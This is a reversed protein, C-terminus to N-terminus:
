LSKLNLFDDISIEIPNCNNISCFQNIARNEFYIWPSEDRYNNTYVQIIIQSSFMQQQLAEILYTNIIDQVFANLTNISKNIYDKINCLQRTNEDILNDKYKWYKSDIFSSKHFKKLIDDSLQNIIKIDKHSHSIFVDFDGNKFPRSIYLM